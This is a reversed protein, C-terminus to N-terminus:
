STRRRTYHVEHKIKKGKAIVAPDTLVDKWVKQLYALRDAPIGPPGILCRGTTKAEPPHRHM